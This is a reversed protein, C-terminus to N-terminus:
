AQTVPRKCLKFTVSKCHLYSFRLSCLVTATVYTHWIILQSMCTTIDLVEPKLLHYEDPRDDSFGM